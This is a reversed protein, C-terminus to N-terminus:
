CDNLCLIDYWNGNYVEQGIAMGVVNESFNSAYNIRYIDLMSGNNHSMEIFDLDIIKDIRNFLNRIFNIYALDAEISTITIAKQNHVYGNLASYYRDIYQEGINLDIYYTVQENDNGVIKRAFDAHSEEILYEYNFKM